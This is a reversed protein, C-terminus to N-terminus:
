PRARAPHPAAPPAAASAAGLRAGERDLAERVAAPAIDRLMRRERAALPAAHRVAHGYSFCQATVRASAVAEHLAEPIM